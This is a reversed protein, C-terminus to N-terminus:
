HSPFATELWGRLKLYVSAPARTAFLFNTVNEYDINRVTGPNYSPVLSPLMNTGFGKSVREGQHILTFLHPGSPVPHWEAGNEFATM